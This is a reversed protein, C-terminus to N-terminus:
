YDGRRRKKGKEEEARVPSSIGLAGKASMAL